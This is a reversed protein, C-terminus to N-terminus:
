YNSPNFCQYAPYEGGNELVITRLYPFQSDELIDAVKQRERSPIEKSVISPPSVFMGVSILQYTPHGTIAQIM